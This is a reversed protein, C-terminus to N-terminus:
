YHPRRRARHAREALGTEVLRPLPTGGAATPVAVDEPESSGLFYARWARIESAQSEHVPISRLSVPRMCREMFGELGDTLLYVNGYGARFLADRAQAPHTMGNSYLIVQRAALEQAVFSELDTLSVNVAGRIHFRAFEAPTRIDVLVLSQDGSLLRRALEEPEVHDEGMEVAALLDTETAVGRTALQSSTEAKGPGGIIILGVALSLIAVTLSKLFASRLFKGGGVTRREIWECGWFCAVAATALAFAFLERSMGLDQWIFHVGADGWHYLPAVWGFVENFLISGGIAGVLFLLADLRGSALGAAATGPCWGSMVFGVGFILGGVIQPGWVTPMLYLQDEAVLDTHLCYLLGIAAVVLATFMVKLVTMDRFYFIGALRRSSGFGAQELSFGFMLGVLFAAGFAAPSALADLGFFTSIM